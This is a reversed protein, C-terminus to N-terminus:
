SFINIKLKFDKHKRVSLIFKRFKLQTGRVDWDAEALFYNFILTAIHDAEMLDSLDARIWSVYIHNIYKDVVKGIVTLSAASLLTAAMYLGGFEGHSLDFASRLDGAVLSIFFTQGFSSFFTLLLGALLWRLNERVFAFYSM